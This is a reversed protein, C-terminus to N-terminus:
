DALLPLGGARGSLFREDCHFAILRGGPSLLDIATELAGEALSSADTAWLVTEYMTRRGEIRADEDPDHAERRVGFDALVGVEGVPFCRHFPGAAASPACGGRPSASRGSRCSRARWALSSRSSSGRRSRRRRREPM